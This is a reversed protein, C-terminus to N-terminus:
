PIADCRDHDYKIRREMAGTSVNFLPSLRTAMNGIVYDLYEARPINQKKAEHILDINRELEDNYRPIFSVDPILLCAAFTNAQFEAWNHDKDPFATYVKVWEEPTSFTLNKYFDRHLHYHGLEHAISFRYRQEHSYYFDQDVYISSLDSSLFADINFKKSLFPTPIIDMGLKEAIIDVEVPIQNVSQHQSLFHLAEQKISSYNIYKLNM